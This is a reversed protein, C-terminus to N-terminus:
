PAVTTDQFDDAAFLEDEGASRSNTELFAMRSPLYANKVQYAANM